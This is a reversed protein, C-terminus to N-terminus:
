ILKNTLILSTYKNRTINIAYSVYICIICVIMIIRFERDIYQFDFFKLNLFLLRIILIRIKM